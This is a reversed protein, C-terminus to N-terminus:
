DFYLEYLRKTKQALQDVSINRSERKTEKGEFYVLLSPVTFISFYAAIEPYIDASIYIQEIKPFNETFLDHIKPQLAKCVACNKGSFYLLVADNQEIKNQIEERKM